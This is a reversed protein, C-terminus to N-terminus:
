LFKVMNVRELFMSLSMNLGIKILILFKILKRKSLNLKKEKPLEGKPQSIKMIQMLTLLITKKTKIQKFEMEPHLMYQNRM